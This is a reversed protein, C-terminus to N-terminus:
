HTGHTGNAGTEVTNRYAGMTLSLRRPGNTRSYVALANQLAPLPGRGLSPLANPLRNECYTQWPVAGQLHFKPLSELGIWEKAPPAGGQSHVYNYLLIQDRPDVPRGGALGTGPEKGLM